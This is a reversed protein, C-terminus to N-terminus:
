LSAASAHFAFGLKIPDSAIQCMELRSRGVQRGSCQVKRRRDVGTRRMARLFTITHEATLSDDSSERTLKGTRTIEERKRDPVDGNDHHTIDVAPYPSEDVEAAMAPARNGLPTTARFSTM